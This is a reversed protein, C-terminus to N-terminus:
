AIADTFPPDISLHEERDVPANASLRLSRTFRRARCSSPVGMSENHPVVFELFVTGDLGSFPTKLIPIQESWANRQALEIDFDTNAVLAGLISDVSALGFQTVDAQHYAHPNLPM